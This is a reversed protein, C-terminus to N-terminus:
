MEPDQHAGSLGGTPRGPITGDRVLERLREESYGSEQAAQKITLLKRDRARLADEIECVLQELADAQHVCGYRRLTAADALKQQLLEDLPDDSM